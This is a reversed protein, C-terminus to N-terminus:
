FSPLPYIHAAKEDNPQIKLFTARHSELLLLDDLNALAVDNIDIWNQMGGGDLLMYNAYGESYTLVMPDDVVSDGQWFLLETAQNPDIGGDFKAAVTLNRGNAGAPTQDFPWMAGTMNFGENLVVAQDHDAILGYSQVEIPTSSPSDPNGSSKPHVWNGGSPDLRLGGQDTQAVLDNTFIWKSDATSTGNLGLVEFGPTSTRNNYLLIRTYDNPDTDEEGAFTTTKDFLDDITQYRIVEFSLGELESDVPLGNMTNFTDVTEEFIDSDNVLTLQGSGGSLIDFRHGELSGPGGSTIQLYYEGNSGVVSTLDSSVADSVDLTVNGDGDTALTLPGSDFTGSYIPKESFPTSFTACEYDNYGVCQWGFSKTFYSVGDIEVALRIVGNEAGNEPAVNLEAATELNNFSVKEAEQPVDPDTTNVTESISTIETWSTPTGLTNAGELRYTVDSLGGRARMFEVSVSGDAAKTLCFGGHSELGSGPHLCLAYELANSAISTGMPIIALVM